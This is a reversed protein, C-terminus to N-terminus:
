SAEFMELPPGLQNVIQVTHTSTLQWYNEFVGHWHPCLKETPGGKVPSPGAGYSTGPLGFGTSVSSASGLARGAKPNSTSEEPAVRIQEDNTLPIIDNRIERFWIMFYNGRLPLFQSLHTLM